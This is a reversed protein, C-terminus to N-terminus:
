LEWFLALLCRSNQKVSRFPSHLIPVTCGDRGSLCEEERVGGEGEM